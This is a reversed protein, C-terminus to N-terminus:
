EAFATAVLVGEHVWLTVRVGRVRRVFRGTPSSRPFVGHPSPRYAAQYVTAYGGSTGVYRLQAAPVGQISCRRGGELEGLSAFDPLEALSFGLAAFAPRLGDISRDRVDLPKRELHNEAVEDAISDLPDATLWGHVGAGVLAAVAAAAALIARRNSRGPRAEPRARLQELQEASLREQAYLERVAQKLPTM